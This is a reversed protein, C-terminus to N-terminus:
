YNFQYTLGVSSSAGSSAGSTGTSTQLKLGKYLNIQVNAQTGSGSTSQTAGVYVGPAVYRGAQLAPPGSGSGALSLQDLGLRTRVAGLPDLGGGVGSLQALAAALSAAQFPTLSTTSENFLLQALIEDSPLPPTSTLTITPHQATGGVTLTATTNNDTTVTSAELDLAPSFGDGNFTVSGSTFQLNEGALTLQGRILDFGGQPDPADSTGTIHVHGGLEAFLGDGRVFIKNKAILTLDLDVPPPPAAPASLKAGPEVIPLDAVSPPLGHPININANEITLTGALTKAARLAGSLALHASITETVTDSAVPTAHDATLTLDIPMAGTLGISGQASLSGAGATAKADQLSIRTGNGSLTATVHTLNLGSSINELSGGTLAATGSANPALPTGTVTVDTAIQGRVEYGAIAVIPDALRLDTTGTLHLNMAGAMALPVDGALALRLDPGAVLRANVTATRGALTGSVTVSAPALQAGPGSRIALRTGSLSFPGAPHALTGTLAAQASLSGSAQLSPAFLGAIGVPLHAVRARAALHPTLTGDLAVAGGNVDAALHHVAIGAKTEIGAPGTLRLTLGRWSASFHEIDASRADINLLTDTQAAAPKGMLSAFQASLSVALASPPGKAHMTADIRGLAPDVLLRTASLDATLTQGEGHSFDGDASGSLPVLSFAALDALRGIDFKAAGTPLSAGAALTLDASASISRWLLNHVLVHGTGAADRSFEADLLLPFNELAGAATLTGQPLKPLHTANVSLSFPGSAVHNQTIDGTILGALSFDEPSGFITGNEQLTGQLGPSLRSIDAIDIQTNMDFADRSLSGAASVEGTATQVDAQAVNLTGGQWHAVLALKAAPGLIKPADHPGATLGITSHLAIAIGDSKTQAVAVHLSAAGALAQGALTSFPALAPIDIRADVAPAQADLNVTGAAAVGAAGIGLKLTFAAADRPGDLTAAIVLPGTLGTANHGILGDPAEQASLTAQVTKPSLVAALNYAAGPATATLALAAHRLNPVHANGAVALTVDQGVISAPLSLAGIALHAIDARWSTLDLGGRSTGSTGGSQPLRQVTISTATLGSVDLYKHLLGLPNWRLELGQATAYSGHTDALTLGGLKVDLPFHGGLGSVHVGPGALRNIENAAFTRGPATNLAIDVGAVALVPLMIIALLIGGIWRRM